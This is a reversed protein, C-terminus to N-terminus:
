LAIAANEQSIAELVASVEAPLASTPAWPQPVVLKVLQSPQPRASPGTRVMHEIRDAYGAFVESEHWAFWAGRTTLPDFGWKRIRAAAEDNIRPDCEAGRRRSARLRAFVVMLALFLAVPFGYVVLNAFITAVNGRVLVSFMQLALVLGFLIAGVLSVVFWAQLGNQMLRAPHKAWRQKEAEPIEANARAIAQTWAANWVRDRSRLLPILLAARQQWEVFAAGEPTQRWMSFEHTATREAAAQQLAHQEHQIALAEQQARAQRATNAATIGNFVMSAGSTFAIGKM